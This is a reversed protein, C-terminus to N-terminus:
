GKLKHRRRESRRFLLRLLGVRLKAYSDRIAQLRDDALVRGGYAVEVKATAVTELEPRIGPLVEGLATAYEYATQTPRPGFGFRGAIRGIGTWALEPTLLGRPGRRWALFAAISLAVLVVLGILLFGGPGIGGNAGGPLVGGPNRSPGEPDNRDNNPLLSVLHSPSATAVPRGSPLPTTVDQGNGTPDFAYWGHGPFYVEVWAHANSNFIQEIGTRKDLDGPLFGEVFRAPIKHDRLLVTMLTAYHECYGRKFKAFCEAISMSGCQMDQVDASYTFRSSQLENRLAISLDWPNDTQGAAKMRQLVDKLVKDAEPGVAGPPLQTYRQYLDPPYSQGAARMASQTLGGNEDGILPVRATVQYPDHGSIELAQFYGDKGAGVLNSDRNISLPVAPSLAYSGRLQDPAVTFTVDKTGAKAVAEATKAFIEANPAIQRTITDDGGTWQWGYNNFQDYAVARWYYHFDDGPTRQITAALGADTSWVGRIPANPGFQIGGIGRSNQLTPLFRELSASVDLLWPKLDDWAGALPASRAGITLVLSGFIAVIIFITGGRLYISGVASPDGIRRRAWTAQEDNAHLRILLFLAAVCFLILYHLQGNTTAAMNAVLIAGIVVVASLPRHHRFVASAAFQGTAWCLLGLILLHHGIARTLPAHNIILDTWAQTAQNATERFQAGLPWTPELVQGVLIPVILAAFVAGLLNGLWRNWGVKSAVFGAVVGGLAAFVLFDTLKGNGIVWGADDIAGAMVVAMLAVLFLSIWGEEPGAALAPLRRRMETM